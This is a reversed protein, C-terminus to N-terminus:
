GECQRYHHQYYHNIARVYGDVSGCDFWHGEFKYGILNGAKAQTKLADTIQIEGNLGPKTNKIAEFIDPTLLYRGVVALRSSASAVDPKEILDDIRYCNDDMPEGQIIGYRNVHEDPVEFLALVSCKHETYLRVLADMVSSETDKLYCLDDALIVGFPEHDILHQGTLIADGLGRMHKQRTFSFTCNELLKRIEELASEKNTGAIKQEVEYSIDFYDTIAHKGRGTVMVMDKMGSGYAEEVAYQLLPKNVIPLMEKPMSKTVPLFRTGYGAIPFLCKNLM